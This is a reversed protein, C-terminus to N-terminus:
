CVELPSVELLEEFNVASIDGVEDCILIEDDDMVRLGHRQDFCALSRWGASPDPSAVDVHRSGSGVDPLKKTGEDGAVIRGHIGRLREALIQRNRFVDE